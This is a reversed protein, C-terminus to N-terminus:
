SVTATTEQVQPLPRRRQRADFEGHLPEFPFLVHLRLFVALRVRPHLDVQAAQDHLSVHVAEITRDQEAQQEIALAAHLCRTLRLAQLRDAVGRERGVFLRQYSKILVSLNSIVPAVVLNSCCM